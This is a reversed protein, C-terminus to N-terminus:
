DGPCLFYPDYIDGGEAVWGTQGDDLKIQWWSWNNGACEPGGIVTFTTGTPMSKISPQGKGPSARLIVSDSKTCVQGKEGVVLRQAPSGPCSSTTTSTMMLSKSDCSMLTEAWFTPENLYMARLYYKGSEKWFFFAAINSEWPPSIPACENYCMETMQWAPEWDSFWINLANKDQHIGVCGPRASLREQLDNLYAEKTIKQGGEIYYTYFLGDDRILNEFGSADGNKIAYNVWDIIAQPDTADVNKVIWNFRTQAQTEGRFTMVLTNAIYDISSIIVNALNAILGVKKWSWTRGLGSLCDDSATIFRRVADQDQLFKIIQESASIGSTDNMEALSEAASAFYFVDSARESLCAIARPQNEIANFGPLMTLVMHVVLRYGAKQTIEANVTIPPTNNLNITIEQSDGPGLLVPTDLASSTIEYYFSKPNIVKVTAQDGNVREVCGQILNQLNVNEVSVPDMTQTCEDTLLKVADVISMVNGELIKNLVALWADWNWHFIAWRSAHTTNVSVLRNELDVDGGTYMWQGADDQYAIFLMDPSIDEPLSQPDYPLSITAPSQLAMDGMSIEYLDGVQSYEEYDADEGGIIDISVQMDQKLSGPPLYLSAGNELQLRGGQNAQIIGSSPNVATKAAQKPTFLSCSINTVLVLLVIIVILSKNKM